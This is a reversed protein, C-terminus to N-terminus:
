KLEKEIKPKLARALNQVRREDPGDLTGPTIALCQNVQEMAEKAKGEKLLTEALYFHARANNPHKAAVKNYWELSKAGDYKPWPLEYYYRGYTLGPGGDEIESNLELSKKLRELFKGELGKFLANVVGIAQSYIGLGVTAYYWGEVRSPNRDRAKDGLEWSLKGESEKEKGNPLGDGVWFHWRSARWLVDYDDPAAKMAQDTLEALKKGNDGVDRKTYLDDIQALIAKLDVAQAAPAAAPPTQALGVCPIAILILPLTRM